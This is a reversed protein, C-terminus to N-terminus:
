PVLHRLLGSRVSSAQFIGPSINIKLRCQSSSSTLELILFYLPLLLVPPTALLLASLCAFGLMEKKWTRKNRTSKSAWWYTHSLYLLPRGTELLRILFIDWLSKPVSLGSLPCETRRSLAWLVNLFSCCFSHVLWHPPLVGLLWSKRFVVPSVYMHVWVSRPLRGPDTGLPTRPSFSSSLMHGMGIGSAVKWQSGSARRTSRM